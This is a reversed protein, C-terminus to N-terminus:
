RWSDGPLEVPPNPPLEMPGKGKSYGDSPYGRGGAGEVEYVAHQMARGDPPAEAGSAAKDEQELWMQGKRRTRRKRKIFFWGVLAVLLLLGAMAGVAVGAWAGGSLSPGDSEREVEGSDSTGKAAASSLTESSLSSSPAPSSPSQSEATPAPSDSSASSTAVVDTSQFNLQFM